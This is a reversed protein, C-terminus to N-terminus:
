VNVIFETVPVKILVLTLLTTKQTRTRLTRLTPCGDLHTDLKLSTTSLHDVHRKSFEEPTTLERIM